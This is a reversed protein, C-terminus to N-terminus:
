KATVPAAPPYVYVEDASVGGFSRGTFHAPITASYKRHINVAAQAMPDDTRIVKVQFPDFNPNRMERAIRLVEGYALDLNADTVEDSALYLNLTGEESSRLWFAAHVHAYSAFRSLFDRAADIQEGVLPGQDM